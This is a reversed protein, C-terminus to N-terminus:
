KLNKYLEKLLYEAIFFDKETDIDIAENEPIIIPVVHGLLLSNTTTFKNLSYVKFGYIIGNLYYGKEHSQAPLFPNSGKIYTMVKNESIKWIRAPPTKTETFSAVSDVEDDNLLDLAKLIYIPKRLPSTPELVLVLEYYEKINEFFKITYRIADIVLSDDTALNSPRNVVVVGSKEAIEAIKHDDTSVVIKDIANISKASDITHCILPKGCLEKINKNPLRKSGGRAPIIVLVKKDDIM